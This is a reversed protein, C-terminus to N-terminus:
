PQDAIPNMKIVAHRNGDVVYILNDPAVAIGYPAAFADELSLGSSATGVLRGQPNFKLVQRTGSSTAYLNGEADLALYPESFAQGEWAAVPWQAVPAGQGDFVAIRANNSDAVYVRSGDGSVALGVPEDLQGAAPGKSGFERRYTGDPGYVVIRANGTDTVFVDGNQGFAIARPGFLGKKPDGVPPDNVINAYTGWTLAFTGDANFKVIRHNWTDAVYLAGDPGLGIGTPGRNSERTFQGDGQGLSGITHIFAGDPGYQEVRANMMDVVYVSGDPAVAVGRPSDLQGQAKGRGPRENIGFPGTPPPPLFLREALTPGYGVIMNFSPAPAVNNRFIWFGLAQLLANDGGGVLPQDAPYSWRLKYEVENYGLPPALTNNAPRFYIQPVAAGQATATALSGIPAVTLNPFDRLYWRVPWEVSPDVHVVLGHGGTIDEVSRRLATEDRSLKLVRDMLPGIEPTSAGYVMPESPVDPRYIGLGVASRLTFGFLFLALGLALARGVASSDVRRAFWVAAATLPLAFGIMTLLFRFTRQTEDYLPSPQLVNGLAAGWATLALAAFLLVLAGGTWFSGERRWDIADVLRGLTVGALISLPFSVLVLLEPQQAGGVLLMIVGAIAWIVLIARAEFGGRPSPKGRGTFLSVAGWIGAALALPEYLPLLALAFGPGRGALNDGLPVLSETWAILWDGPGSALNGPVAGFASFVIALTAIAALAAPLAGARAAAAFNARGFTEEAPTAEDDADDADPAAVPRLAVLTTAAAIILLTTIGLPTSVFLLAAAVAALIFDARQGRDFLRLIAVFLVTGFFTAYADPQDRRAFYVLSPSIALMLGAFLAGARGLYPRLWIAALVTGVGALAPGLRAIEDTVGFLFFLLASFVVAFPGGAAADLATGTGNYLAYAAYAHRSGEASLAGSGLALLRLAAAVVLVGGWALIEVGHRSLDITRLLPTEVPGREEVYQEDEAARLEPRQEVELM